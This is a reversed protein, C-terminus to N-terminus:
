MAKLKELCRRVHDNVVDCGMCLSFIRFPLLLFFDQYNWYYLHNSQKLKQDWAICHVVCEFRNSNYILHATCDATHHVHITNYSFKVNTLFNCGKQFDRCRRGWKEVDTQTGKSQEGGGFEM